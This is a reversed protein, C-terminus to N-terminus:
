VFVMGASIGFRETFSMAGFVGDVNSLIDLRIAGDLTAVIVGEPEGVHCLTGPSVGYTPHKVETAQLLNLSTNGLTVVCGALTPNGARALAAIQSATMTAWDVHLDKEKVLPAQLGQQQSKVLPIQGNHEVLKNMFSQVLKPAYHALKNELSQLTDLEEIAIPLSLAIDGQESAIAKVLTLHTCRRGDRIQWYSPMPGYYDDPAAGLMYYLGYTTAQSLSNKLSPAFGFSIALDAHWDLLQAVVVAESQEGMKCYPIESQQLQAQLKGSFADLREPLLVGALRHEQLLMAITPVAMPSAALVVVKTVKHVPKSKVM